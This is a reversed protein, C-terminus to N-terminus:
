IRDGKRKGVTYGFQETIELVKAFSKKDVNM